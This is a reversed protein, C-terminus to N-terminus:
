LEKGLASSSKSKQSSAKFDHDHNILFFEDIIKGNQDDSVQQIQLHTGNLANLRTYGYDMARFATVDPWPLWSEHRERNGASGTIIHVPAKPNTYPDGSTTTGNKVKWDYVPWLREWDHEHAWIALDVNYRMMLEELGFIHLLPVGIRTRTTFRTCDDNDQDSCYMPRHGYIIIWPRKERNEQSSAIKLDNELWLYQRIIQHFGYEMFYYYETNISIFHVPGINFSYYMDLGLEDLQGNREPMTFRNKYHSFNSKQEHNGPCTMYPLYAAIPEIQRMFEDGM